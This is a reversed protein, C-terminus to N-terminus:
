DMRSMCMAEIKGDDIEDNIVKSFAIGYARKKEMSQDYDHVWMSVGKYYNDRSAIDNKKLWNCFSHNGPRINVWAFGCVGDAYPGYEKVVESNDDLPNARQQVVMPTPKCEEAAKKGADNAKNYVEQWDIQPKSDGKKIAGETNELLDIAAETEGEKLLGIIESAEDKDIEAGRVDYGAMTFIAWSQRPTMDNLFDEM